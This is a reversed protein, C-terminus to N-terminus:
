KQFHEWGARHQQLPPADPLKVFRTYEGEFKVKVVGCPGSRNKAIRVWRGNNDQYVFMVWNADQEISGSDRLHHLQPTEKTAERSFQSLAIVPIDLDMALAKLGQSIQTIEDNRSNTREIAKLLQLYDVVIMRLRGHALRASAIARLENVNKARCFNLDMRATVEQAIQKQQENLRGASIVDLNIEAKQAIIREAIEQPTMELSCFLVESRMALEIALQTAMSSKGEGPRGAIIGLQGRRIWILKDLWDIGTRIIAATGRQECVDVVAAQVTTIPQTGRQVVEALRKGFEAIVDTVSEVDESAMDHLVRASTIIKRLIAKDRVIDQSGDWGVRSVVSDVLDMLNSAGGALELQCTRRLEEAIATPEVERGSRSVSQIAMYIARNRESYFDSPDLTVSKAIDHYKLCSGLVTIEAQESRPLGKRIESEM